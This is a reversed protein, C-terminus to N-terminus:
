KRRGATNCGTAYAEPEADSNGMCSGPDSTSRDCTVSFWSKQLFEMIYYLPQDAINLGCFGQMKSINGSAKTIADSFGSFQNMQALEKWQSPSLAYLFDVISNSTANGTM